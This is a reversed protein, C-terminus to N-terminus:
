RFFFNLFIMFTSEFDPFCHVFLIEVFLYQLFTGLSFWLALCYLLQFNLSFSEVSSEIFYLSLIEM